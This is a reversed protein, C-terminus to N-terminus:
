SFPRDHNIAPLRAITAAVDALDIDAVWVGPTEGSEIVIDGWPNVILSHGYTKRGGPHDGTQAAAIVYCGTEIARARLLVKWHARGTPVTFASPVCLIEAGKKALARYLQAFRLDYCISMGYKVGGAEAVVAENGPAYLASERWTETESVQVDFLHIKDYQAVIEGKSSILFGRNALMNDERLIPMSGIHLTIGHNKALSTFTELAMKQKEGYPANDGRERGVRLLTTMEPTQVYGAGQAAALMILRSAEAVNEMVDLGSTMQVVAVKFPRKESM